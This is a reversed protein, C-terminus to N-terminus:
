FKCISSTIKKHSITMKSRSTSPVLVLNGGCSQVQYPRERARTQNPRHRYNSERSFYVGSPFCSGGAELVLYQVSASCYSRRKEESRPRLEVKSLQDRM